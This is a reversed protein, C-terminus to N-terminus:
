LVDVGLLFKHRGMSRNCFRYSLIDEERHENALSADMSEPIEYLAPRIIVRNDPIATEIQHFSSLGRIIKRLIRSVRVDEHPYVLFRNQREIVVPQMQVFLDRVRRKGMSSRSAKDVWLEKVADNSEGAILMM